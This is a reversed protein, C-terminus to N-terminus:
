KVEKDGPTVGFFLQNIKRREAPTLARSYYAFIACLVGTTIIVVMFAVLANTPMCLAVAIVTAFAFSVVKRWPQHTAVRHITEVLLFISAVLAFYFM